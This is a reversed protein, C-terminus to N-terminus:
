MVKELRERPPLTELIEQQAAISLAESSLPGALLDAFHGPEDITSLRHVLVTPPPLHRSTEALQRLQETARRLLEAAEPSRDEEEPLVEIRARFFPETQLFEV